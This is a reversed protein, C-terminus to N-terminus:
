RRRCLSRVAEIGYDVEEQTNFYGFSFRVTGEPYTGLTRHARPACHLGVRTEIGFESDLLFAAEAQDMHEFVVSVVAVREQANACGECDPCSGSCTFHGGHTDLSDPATMTENEENQRYAGWLVRVGQVDRLGDAFRQALETEKKHINATGTEEIFALGANLGCIGPLNLTGAEFRDPLVEPMTELHSFSGTGGAILPTMTGPESLRRGLVVGGTGQPGLLGKHGTFCLADIHHKDMDLPVSGATQAADVIFLLNNDRALKGLQGIPQVAGNVNSAHNVVLARTKSTIYKEARDADLYGDADCPVIDFTIRGADRLQVLPRMVANHEMSSTLVHDGNRLAGQLVMNLSMTVGSTFIVNREDPGNFLRNIRGRAELVADAASYASEYSGRNVNSGVNKIFDCVAEAVSEPKPFTTAANDFYLRRHTNNM